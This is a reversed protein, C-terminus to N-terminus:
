LSLNVPVSLMERITNSKRSRIKNMIRNGELQMEVAEKLNERAEELTVGQTAAGPIEEVYAVWWKKRKVFVATYQNFKMRQRM